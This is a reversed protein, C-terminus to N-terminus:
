KVARIEVVIRGSGGVAATVSCTDAGLPKVPLRYLGARNRNYNNASINFGKSCGLIFTGNNVNGVLRVYIAKPRSVEASASAIAFQGSASGRGVVRGPLVLALVTGAFVLVVLMAIPIAAYRVTRSM